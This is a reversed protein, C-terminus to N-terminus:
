WRGSTDEQQLGILQRRKWAYHLINIGLEQATRIMLRPLNLDRELGWASALEGIVLIIGGGISLRVPHQNVIPLASPHQSQALDPLSFEHL